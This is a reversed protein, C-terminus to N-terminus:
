GGQAATRATRLRALAARRPAQAAPGGGRGRRAARVPRAPIVRTDNVVMLDGPRLLEPLDAIRRDALRDGVHLLRAADRPEVPRQAILGSPLDFDFDSTSLTM